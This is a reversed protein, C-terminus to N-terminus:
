AQNLAPLYIHTSLQAAVTPDHTALILTANSHQATQLLLQMFDDRQSPDLASTPEDALIIRPAGLLARAAAVRQQQGVSLQAAPRTWTDRPLHMAALARQAASLLPKKLNSSQNQQQKEIEIARERRQPNLQAPLLVNDLANLYPLLSFQQFIYGIEAARLQDRQSASLKTTDRGLIRLQGSHPPLIAALLNLFTSKGCGSPGQIAISQGTCASFHDIRLIPRTPTNSPSKKPTHFFELGNIEITITPSNAPM